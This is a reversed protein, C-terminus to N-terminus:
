NRKVIGDLEIMKNISIHNIYINLILKFSFLSDFFRNVDNDYTIFSLNM